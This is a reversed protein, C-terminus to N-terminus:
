IVAVTVKNLIMSEIFSLVIFSSAEDIDHCCYMAKKVSIPNLYIPPSLSLSLARQLHSFSVPLYFGWSMWEYNVLASGRPAEMFCLWGWVQWDCLGALTSVSYSDCLSWKVTHVSQFNPPIILRHSKLPFSCVYLKKKKFEENMLDISKMDQESYTCNNGENSLAVLSATRATHTCSTRLSVGNLQYSPHFHSLDNADLM